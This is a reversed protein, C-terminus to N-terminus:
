HKPKADKCSFFFVPKLLYVDYVVRLVMFKVYMLTNQCAQAIAALCFFTVQRSRIQFFSFNKLVLQFGYANRVVGTTNVKKIFSNHKHSFCM